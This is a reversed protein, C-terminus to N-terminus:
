SLQSYRLLQVKLSAKNQSFWNECMLFKLFIFLFVATRWQMVSGSMLFTGM